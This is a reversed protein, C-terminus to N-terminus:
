KDSVPRREGLFLFCIIHHLRFMSKLSLPLFRYNIIGIMWKIIKPNNNNRYIDKYRDLRSGHEGLMITILHHLALVPAYALPTNTNPDTGVTLHSVNDEWWSLEDVNSDNDRREWWGGRDTGGGLGGDADGVFGTQWSGVVLQGGKISAEAGSCSVPVFYTQNCYVTHIHESLPHCLNGGGSIDDGVDCGIAPYIGM